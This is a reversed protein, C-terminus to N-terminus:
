VRHFPLFSRRLFSDNTQLFQVNLNLAFGFMFTWLSDVLLEDIIILILVSLHLVHPSRFALLLAHFCPNSTQMETRKDSKGPLTITKLLLVFSTRVNKTIKHGIKSM